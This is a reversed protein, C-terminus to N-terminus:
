RPRTLRDLRRFALAIVQRLKRRGGAAVWHAIAAEITAVIAGAVVTAELADGAARKELFLEVLSQRMARLNAATAIQLAPTEGMLRARRLIREADEAYHRDLAEVFAERVAALPTATALRAAIALFLQPDYEDWLVVHEKSGFHRYVTAPGVEAVAAIEEITVRDFGRSEFLDLAAAQVRRMAEVRKRDRLDL